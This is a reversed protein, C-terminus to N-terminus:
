NKLLMELIKKVNKQGVYGKNVAKNCEKCLGHLSAPLYFYYYFLDTNRSKGFLQLDLFRIDHFFM